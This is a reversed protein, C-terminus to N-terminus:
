NMTPTDPGGKEVSLAYLAGQEDAGDRIVLRKALLKSLESQVSAARPKKGTAQAVLKTAADRLARSSQPRSSEALLHLIAAAVTEVRPVPVVGPPTWLTNYREGHREVRGSRELLRLLGHANSNSQGTKRAIELTRLGQPNERVFAEIVDTYKPEVAPRTKPSAQNPLGYLKGGTPVHGAGVLLGEKHMRSVDSRVTEDPTGPRQRQVAVTLDIMGMPGREAILARIRGRITPGKQTPQELAKAAPKRRRRSKAPKQPARGRARATATMRKDVRVWILPVEDDELDDVAACAADLRKAKAHADRRFKEDSSGSAM